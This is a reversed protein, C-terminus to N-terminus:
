LAELFNHLNIKDISSLAKYKNTSNLAESGPTGHWLIAEKITRARGDHLYTGGPEENCIENGEGGQPNVVGNTVCKSLGLGWLPTTRWERGSVLGDALNDALGDGMDHVLLDTYPQIAQDRVEVLPHFQSTQFSPTHCTACGTDIFAQKGAKISQNEVGSELGRQARVALAQVYYVLKDFNTDDLAQAGSNCDTQSSGCDLNSLLTTKVGMDTNLAGAVQHEVSVTSAKWGFRGLRTLAPDKPDTVLNARGSVGDNNSKQTAELNLIDQEKIAELLGLGVLRPSIRASFTVPQGSEFTFTPTRLGNGLETWKAISVSGEGNGNTNSPQIVRGRKADPAGLLDGIKFIWRDLPVGNAEVSSGGNRVHCGSCSENVHHAGVLNIVDSFTGNEVFEDHRGDTFNSHFVRRGELFKQSKNYDINLAMQMFSNDPEHTYQYPVTTDGGLRYEDPLERSDEQYHAKHSTVGQVLEGTNETYWPVIGKGVIYLFTSGYYNTQGGIIEGNRTGSFQSVEFEMLDGIVIAPADAHMGLASGGPTNLNIPSKRPNTTITKTYHYHTGDFGNVDGKNTDISMLSNDIYDAVTGWGMYWIRGERQTSIPWVTRVNLTVGQGGKAVRDIIEMSSSRREFYHAIYHDYSQFENEKAHRTRPRDGYRTILATATHEQHVGELITAGDYLATVNGPDVIPCGVSNVPTGTPTNPCQDLNDKVGDGDSDNNGSGVLNLQLWNINYGGTISYLRLKHVGGTTVIVQGVNHNEFIQWGGTNAVNDNGILTNDLTLSYNGGGNNSAVRTTVNYTGVGLTISYDLWESAQTWGVNFGKNVDTTAEIDVNDFRYVGGNNGEDNDLFDTYNEAEILINQTVLVPCGNADVTTGAPTNPCQDINDNVGDNDSDLVIPCGNVDVTTGAPTNPCQDINDNVGDNDSDLVVPCGNADVTTGAPTNPCQDKNDSVGDNDSDTDGSGDGSITHSKVSTGVVSGNAQVYTFWYSIVDGSSLGTLNKINRGNSFVMRVNQQNAGNITYHVDAWDISNVYFTVNSNSTQEIGETSLVIPCGASNVPTEIPTNPCLDISDNIGDGDSDTVNSNGGGAWVIDDIAMQFSSTPLQGDISAIYFMGQLSQIAVASGRIDAVPITATAWEGNRVLGYTTTNAPFEVWSQNTYTDEIGVKFSVNAPVKIKFSLEGNESFNSLDRVQRTQIGRGFWENSSTYHWAIVNEGEAAATNGNSVTNKNWVYLDSSEGIALKNNTPTNDTFVGFIGAEPVTQNDTFVEGQGDLEYVRIYDVYMKATLPATVASNSRADTFNGGVSLNLLLYFPAQFESSEETITFPADYMDIEVGNDEVTFRIETSTWYTRYTVFRHSLSTNSVHANDTQWATSAACTPNGENCASPSYFILNSGVYSNIDAGPFGAEARAQARHGMEMMDIEGNAPWSQTTTGLLWAAPWLGVGVEPVRMRVEIMGYQVAVKNSSIVKGSTFAYGNSTENRAELVLAKNGAEGPVDAIYANSQDYWQLEQNGWGCLNKDCGDGTEVLWSNADLSNFNDEWLLNGVGAHAQSALLMLLGGIGTCIRKQQIKKKTTMIGEERLKNM